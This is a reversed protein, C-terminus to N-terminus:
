GPPMPQDFSLTAQVDYGTIWSEVRAAPRYLKVLWLHDFARWCQTEDFKYAGSHSGLCFYGGVYASLPIAIMLVVALIIHMTGPQKDTM